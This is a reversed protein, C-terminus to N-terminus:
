PKSTTSVDPPSAWPYPDAEAPRVLIQPWNLDMFIQIYVAALEIPEQLGAHLLIQIQEM